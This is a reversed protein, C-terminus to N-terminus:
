LKETIKQYTRTLFPPFTPVTRWKNFINTINEKTELSLFGAITVQVLM